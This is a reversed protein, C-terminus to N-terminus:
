IFHSVFLFSIKKINIKDFIFEFSAYALEAESNENCFIVMESEFEFFYVFIIVFILKNLSSKIAAGTKCM